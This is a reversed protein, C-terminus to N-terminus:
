GQSGYGILALTDNKFYDQFKQRPWDEREYVTEKTGAFDITKIGRRQPVAPAVQLNATISVRCRFSVVAPRLAIRSVASLMGFSRAGARARSLRAALRASM